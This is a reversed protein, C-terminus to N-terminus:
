RNLNMNYLYPSSYIGVQRIALQTWLVSPGFINIIPITPVGCVWLAKACTSACGFGIGFRLRDYGLLSCNNQNNHSLWGMLKSNLRLQIRPVFQNEGPENYFQPGGSWRRFNCKWAYEISGLIGKYKTRGAITLRNAVSIKIDNNGSGNPNIERIVAHGVKAQHNEKDFEYQYEYKGPSFSTVVDQVNGALGFAYGADEYWKNGPEGLYDFDNTGWNYSGVGFCVSPQIMGNSLASMGVSNLYSSSIIGLTNSLFGGSAAISAGAYGSLGGITAGAAIYGAMGWGSAHNADGIQYGMYGGFAMGIGMAVILPNNGDPDVFSLPNNLCYSYRNLSQTFDASQVFNDPSLFRAIAPDYMRGNMNILNFEDLHEHGTYGRYIYNPITSTSGWTIPDRRNGWADYSYEELMNGNKDMLGMISGQHDSCVFNDEPNSNGTKIAVDILRGDVFIYNYEKTTTTNNIHRNEMEYDGAFYREYVPIYSNGDFHKLASKSREEDSGYTIELLDQQPNLDNSISFPKNFPTYHISQRPPIVLPDNIASIAHPRNPDYEYSGIDSKIQINGNAQYGFNLPTEINKQSTLLRHLPDYTFSETRNNNPDVLNSRNMLNGTPEDYGFSYYYADGMNVKTETLQNYDNYDYNCNINQGLKEKTVLGTANEESRTWIPLLNDARVIQTHYGNTNYINKIAYSSPYTYVDVDNSNQRFTWSTIFPNNEIYRKTKVLRGLNDYEYELDPVNNVKVNILQGIGFGSNAYDYTIIDDNNYQINTPDSVNLIQKFRIRGMCDYRMEFENLNADTQHILQGFDNYQYLTTKADPDILAIQRGSNPDYKMITISGNSEIKSVQGSPHYSYRITGGPDTAEILQGLSNVKTTKSVLDPGVITTFQHDYIYSTTQNNFTVNDLLGFDNYHYKQWKIDGPLDSSFYPKSKSEIQGISNYITSNIVMKPSTLSFVDSESRIEREFLDLYSTVTPEQPTIKVIKFIPNGLFPASLTTIWHYEIKSPYGLDTPVTTKILKGFLDYEYTTTNGNIDTENILNGTVEDYNKIFILQQLCNTKKNIFKYNADYDINEISTQSPLSPSSTTIKNVLGFPNSYSYDVQNYVSNTNSPDLTRQSILNGNVNYDRTVFKKFHDAGIYQTTESKDFLYPTTNGGGSANPNIYHFNSYTHGDEIINQGDISNCVVTSSELNGNVDMDFTSYNQTFKLLNNSTQTHIYPFFIHNPFNHTTWRNSTSTIGANTPLFISNSEELVNYFYQPLYTFHSSVKIHTAENISSFDGFGIFGKGQTHIKAGKYYYNTTIYSTNGDSNKISSTIRMPGNWDIVIPYSAGTGREYNTGKALTSFSFYTRMNFGDMIYSPYDRLEDRHFYHIQSPNENFHDGYWYSYFLDFAGDGNFDGFHYCHDNVDRHEEEHRSETHFIGIDCMCASSYQSGISYNIKYDVYYQRVLPGFPEPDHYYHKEAPIIHLIDTKGDGNFDAVFMQYDLKEVNGYIPAISFSREFDIGNSYSGLIGDNQEDTRWILDSKGDGNLDGIYIYLFPEPSGTNWPIDVTQTQLQNNTFKYFHCVNWGPTNIEMIELVGDGDYDLPYIKDWWHNVQSGNCIINVQGTNSINVLSYHYDDYPLFIDPYGDSNFNGVYAGILNTYNLSLDVHQFHNIPSLNTGPTLLIDYKIYGNDEHAFLIDVIGDGNM